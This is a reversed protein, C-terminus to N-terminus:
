FPLNVHVPQLNVKHQLQRVTSKYESERLELKRILEAEKMAYEAKRCTLFLGVLMLIELLEGQYLSM